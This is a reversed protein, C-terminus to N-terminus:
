ENVLLTARYTHNDSLTDFLRFSNGERHGPYFVLIKYKGTENYDEYKALFENVRLYPFMSGIGYIFVYPRKYDDKISIHNIIKEHISRMFEEGHALRTLTEQVNKAQQPDKEEKELLYKLMSPHRLFRKKDLYSCFEDFLNLTLVDVYNTPRLLNKKFEQIQRRINYEEEAPYQFIFFNYFLDGNETDQFGPSNLKDDLEKITM